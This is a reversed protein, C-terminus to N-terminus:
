LMLCRYEVVPFLDFLIELSLNKITNTRCEFSVLETPVSTITCEVVAPHKIMASEVEFSVMRYSTYDNLRHGPKHKIYKTFSVRDV